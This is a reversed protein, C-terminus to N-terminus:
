GRLTHYTPYWGFVISMLPFLFTGKPCSSGTSTSTTTGKAKNSKLFPDSSSEVLSGADGSAIQLFSKIFANDSISMAQARMPGCSLNEFWTRVDEMKEVVVPNNQQKQQQQEVVVRPSKKKCSRGSTDDSCGHMQGKDENTSTPRRVHKTSEDGQGPQNAGPTACPFTRTRSSKEAKKKQISDQPVRVGTQPTTSKRVGNRRHKRRRQTAKFGGGRGGTNPQKSSSITTTHTHERVIYTCNPKKPTPHKSAQSTHLNYTWFFSTM